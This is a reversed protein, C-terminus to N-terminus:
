LEQTKIISALDSRATRGMRVDLLKGKEGQMVIQGPLGATDEWKYYFLTVGCVVQENPRVSDLAPSEAMNLLTERMKARLAPLEKLKRDHVSVTDKQTLQHFPNPIPTPALSIMTTFVAGYGDLYVGRTNSWIDFSDPGAAFGSDIQGELRSLAIRSIRPADGFGAIAAVIGVLVASFALRRM